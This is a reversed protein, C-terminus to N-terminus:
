ISHDEALVLYNEDAQSCHCYSPPTKGPRFIYFFDQNKKKNQKASANELLRFVKFKFIEM